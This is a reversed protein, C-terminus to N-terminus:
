AGGEGEPTWPDRVLRPGAVTRLVIRGGERAYEALAVAGAPVELLVDVRVGLNALDRALAAAATRELPAPARVILDLDSAATATPRGTALEFGVSGTPGWSWGLRAMLDGVRRLARLAPIGALRGRELAGAAPPLDEPAVRGVAAAPPLWGGWREARTRGRVGIPLRGNRPAQRRIVGWPAEALVAAVWDPCAEEGALAAPDALRLLDHARPVCEM